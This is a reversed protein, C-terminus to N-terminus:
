PGWTTRYAPLERGPAYRQRAAALNGSLHVPLGSLLASAGVPLLRQSSMQADYWGGGYTGANLAPLNLLRATQASWHWGALACVLGTSLALVSLREGLGAYALATHRLREVPHPLWALWRGGWPQLDAEQARWARGLLTLLSAALALALGLSLLRLVDQLLPLGEPGLNYLTGSRLSRAFRRWEEAEGGRGQVELLAAYSRYLEPGGEFRPHLTRLHRMWADARTLRGQDLLTNLYLVPDGYAKLAARSVRIEPDYGRQAADRRAQELVLDAAAPYGAADLGAALRVGAPFPLPLTVLQRVTQLAGYDDGAAQQQSAVRLGLFPNLPDDAWAHKVEAPAVAKATRELWLTVAPDPPFVAREQLGGGEAAPRLTFTEVYGAGQTM